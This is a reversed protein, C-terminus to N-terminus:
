RKLTIDINSVYKEGLETEFKSDYIETSVLEYNCERVAILAVNVAKNINLGRAKLVVSPNQTVSFIYNVIPKLGIKIEVIEVM